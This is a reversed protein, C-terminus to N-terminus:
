QLQDPSFFSHDNFRKFREQFKSQELQRRYIETEYVDADAQLRSRRSNPHPVRQDNPAYSHGSPAFTKAQQATATPIDTMILSFAGLVALALLRRKIPSTKKGVSFMDSKGYM